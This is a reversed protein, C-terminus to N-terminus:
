QCIVNPPKGTPLQASLFAIRRNLDPQVKCVNHIASIWADFKSLLLVLQDMTRPDYRYRESLLQPSPQLTNNFNNLHNLRVECNYVGVFAANGRDDTSVLLVANPYYPLIYRQAIATAELLDDVTASARNRFAILEHLM